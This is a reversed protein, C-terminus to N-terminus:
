GVPLAPGRAKQQAKRVSRRKPPRSDAEEEVYRRSLRWGARGGYPVGVLDGSRLLRRVQEEGLGLIAAAERVTVSTDELRDPAMLLADGFDDPLDGGGSGNTL